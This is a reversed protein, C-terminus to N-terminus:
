LIKNWSVGGNVSKWLGGGGDSYAVWYAIQSFGGSASSPDFTVSDHYTGSGQMNQELVPSWTAAQDTSLWLGNVSYAAGNCGVALIRSTNNPDIAFATAGRPSAWMRRSGTLAAM